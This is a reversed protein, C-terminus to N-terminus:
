KVSRKISEMLYRWDGVTRPTRGRYSIGALMRIEAGSLRRGESECQAAYEELGEPLPVAEAGRGAGTANHAVPMVDEALLSGVGVELAGAVKALIEGSPHSGIGSEGSREIRALYAKSVDARRALEAISIGRMTRLRRIREGVSVM